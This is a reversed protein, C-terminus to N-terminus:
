KAVTEIYEDQKRTFTYYILALVDIDASANKIRRARDITNKLSDLMGLNSYIFGKSAYNGPESPDNEEAKLVWAYAKEYDNKRTYNEVIDLITSFPKIEHAKLLWKLQEDHLGKWQNVYALAMYGSERDPSIQTAKKALISASDLWNKPNAASIGIFTYNESLLAYADSFEADIRIAEKLLEIAKQRNLLEGGIGLRPSILSSAKLYLDYAETSLTPATALRKKDANSLNLQFKRVIQQAIDSQVEFVDKM